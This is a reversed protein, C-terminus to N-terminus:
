RDVGLEEFDDYDIRSHPIQQFTTGKPYHDQEDYGCHKCSGALKIEDMGNMFVMKLKAFRHCLKCRIM